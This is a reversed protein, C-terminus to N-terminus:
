RTFIITYTFYVLAASWSNHVKNVIPGNTQKEHIANNVETTAYRIYEFVTKLRKVIGWLDLGWVKKRKGRGACGVLSEPPDM